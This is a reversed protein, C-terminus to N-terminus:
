TLKNLAIFGSQVPMSNPQPQWYNQPMTQVNQVAQNTSPQPQPYSHPPTSHNEGNARQDYISMGM